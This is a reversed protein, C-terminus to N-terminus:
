KETMGDYVEVARQVLKDRNTDSLMMYFLEAAGRPGHMTDYAECWKNWFHPYFDDKWAEKCEDESWKNWMYYFFDTVQNPFKKEADLISRVEKVDKGFEDLTYVEDQKWGKAFFHDFIGSHFAVEYRKVAKGGDMALVDIPFQGDNDKDILSHYDDGYFQELASWMDGCDEYEFHYQEGGVYAILLYNATTIM